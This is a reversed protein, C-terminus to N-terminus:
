AAGEARWEPEVVTAHFQQPVLQANGTACGPRLVSPAAARGSQQVSPTGAGVSPTGRFGLSRRNVAM